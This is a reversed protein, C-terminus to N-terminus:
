IVDCASFLILRYSLSVHKTTEGTEIILGDAHLYGRYRNLNM